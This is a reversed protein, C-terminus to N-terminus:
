YTSCIQECTIHNRRKYHQTTKTIKHYVILTHSLHSYLHSAALWENMWETWEACIQRLCAIKRNRDRDNPILSALSYCRVEGKHQTVEREYFIAESCHSRRLAYWEYSESHFCNEYCLTLLHFICHSHFTLSLFPFLLIINMKHYMKDNEVRTTTTTRYWETSNTGHLRSVVLWDSTFLCHFHGSLSFNVCILQSTYYIHSISISAHKENNWDFTFDM